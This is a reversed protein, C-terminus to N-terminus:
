FIVLMLKTLPKAGFLHCAMIQDLLPKNLQHMYANGQGNHTLQEDAM